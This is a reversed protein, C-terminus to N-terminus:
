KGYVDLAGDRLGRYETELDVAELTTRLEGLGQKFVEFSAALNMRLSQFPSIKTKTKAVEGGGVLAGFTALFWIGFISLTIAGSALLAFRKKPLEPSTHLSALYKRM